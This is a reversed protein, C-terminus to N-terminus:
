QSGNDYCNPALGDKKIIEDGQKSVVGVIIDYQQKLVSGKLEESKLNVKYVAKISLNSLWVLNSYLDICIHSIFAILFAVFWAIGAIKIFGGIRKCIEATTLTIQDTIKENSYLIQELKQEKSNKYGDVFGVVKADM